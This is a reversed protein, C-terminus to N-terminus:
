NNRIPKTQATKDGGCSMQVRRAMLKGRRRNDEKRVKNRKSPLKFSAM